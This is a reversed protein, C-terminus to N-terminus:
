WVRYPVSSPKVFWKGTAHRGLLSSVSSATAQSHPSPGVVVMRIPLKGDQDAVSLDFYPVITSDTVRFRVQPHDINTLDSVLRWEREESFGPDKLLPAVALLEEVFVRLNRKSFWYGDKSRELERALLTHIVRYQAAPDYICEALRFGQSRFCSELVELDFAISLGGAKPSYARWQSLLDPLESLSFVFINVRQISQLQPLLSELIEQRAPQERVLQEIARKALCITYAFEASDNLYHISSAWVRTTTLIGLFGALSTYHYLLGDPRLRPLLDTAELGPLAIENM